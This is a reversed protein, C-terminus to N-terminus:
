ALLFHIGSLKRLVEGRKLKGGDRVGVFSADQIGDGGPTDTAFTELMLGQHNGGTFDASDMAPLGFAGLNKGFVSSGKGLKTRTRRRCGEPM